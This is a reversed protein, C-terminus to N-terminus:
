LKKLGLIDKLKNRKILAILFVFLFGLLLIILMSITNQAVETARIIITFSSSSTTQNDSVMATIKYKGPSMWRHQITYNANNLLWQSENISGDNFDITYKISDDDPDSSNITFSYYEYAIGETPGFLKPTSPPNNPKSIQISTETYNTAGDNDIVTLRVIYTGPKTFHHNVTVGTLDMNDGFDWLWNSITGDPDYSLLGYFKMVSNVEGLNSDSETITAIPPINESDDGNANKGSTRIGTSSTPSSGSNNTENTTNKELFHATITTNKTINITEISSSSQVDGTWSSFIWGPSAAATITVLTGDSFTLQDLNKAVTGEGDINITLTYLNKTFHAKVTKNNTMIINTPNENGTLNGSWHDFTWDLDAIATLEVIAGNNYTPSDPNNQVAGNGSINVSLIYSKQTIVSFYSIDGPGTLWNWGGNFIGVQINWEGVPADDKLKYACTIVMDYVPNSEFVVVNNPDRIRLMLTIKHGYTEKGYVVEGQSFTTKPTQYDAEYTGVSNCAIVTVFGLQVIFSLIIIISIFRTHRNM